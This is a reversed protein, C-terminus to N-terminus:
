CSLVEEGTALVMTQYEKATSEKLSEDIGQEEEKLLEKKTRRSSTSVFMSSAAKERASILAMKITYFVKLFKKFHLKRGRRKNLEMVVPGGPQPTATGYTNQSIEETSHTKAFYLRLPDEDKMSAKMSPQNPRSPILLSGTLNSDVRTNNRIHIITTPPRAAPETVEMALMLRDLKMMENDLWGSDKAKELVIKKNLRKSPVRFLSNERIFTSSAPLRSCLESGARDDVSDDVSSSSHGLLLNYLEDLFTKELRLNGTMTIRPEM